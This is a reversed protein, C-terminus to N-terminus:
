IKKTTSNTKQEVVLFCARETASRWDCDDANDTQYIIYLAANEEEFLFVFFGFM